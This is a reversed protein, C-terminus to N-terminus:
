FHPHQLHDALKVGRHLRLPVSEHGCYPTVRMSSNSEVIHEPTEIQPPSVESCLVPLLSWIQLFLNGKERM